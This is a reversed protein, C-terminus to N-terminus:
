DSLVPATAGAREEPRPSQGGAEEVIRARATRAARALSERAAKEAATERVWLARTLQRRDSPESRLTVTGADDRSVEVDPLDGAARTLEAMADADIRDVTLETMM